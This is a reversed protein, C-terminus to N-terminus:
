ATVCRIIRGQPRFLICHWDYDSIITDNISQDDIYIDGYEISIAIEHIIDVHAGGTITDRYPARFSGNDNCLVTPLVAITKDRYVRLTVEENEWIGINLAKTIIYMPVASSGITKQCM